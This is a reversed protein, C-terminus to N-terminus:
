TTKKKEYRKYRRKENPEMDRASIVRILNTRVTFVMFIKRQKNTKGYAIFRKEDQSHKIDDTIAIPRNFFVEECEAKTVNHNHWNKFSNNRDWQFGTCEKLIDYKSIM